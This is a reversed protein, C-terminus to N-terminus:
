IKTLNPEKKLLDIVAKCIRIVQAKSMEGEDYMFDRVIRWDPKGSTPDFLIDDRLPKIPPLPLMKIERDELPDKLVEFYQRYGGSLTQPAKSSEM